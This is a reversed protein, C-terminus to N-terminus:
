STDEDRHTRRFRMLFLLKALYLVLLVLFYPLPNIERTRFVLDEKAPSRFFERPALNVPQLRGDRSYTISTIGSRNESIRSGRSISTEEFSVRRPADADLYSLYVLPTQADRPRQPDQFFLRTSGGPPTSPAKFGVPLGAYCPQSFSREPPFILARAPTFTEPILTVYSRSNRDLRRIGRAPLRGGEGTYPLDALLIESDGSQLQPLADAIIRSYTGSTSVIRVPTSLLYIYDLGPGVIRYLGEGDIEILGLDGGPLRREAAPVAKFAGLQEDYRMVSIERQYGARRLLIRYVETSFDYHVSTPYFFPEEGEGVEVVHLNTRGGDYRDTIFVVKRFGRDFLSQLESRDANFFTHTRRLAEAYSRAVDSGAAPDAAGPFRLGGLKFVRTRGRERDWALLFLRVREEKGGIEAARQVARQLADPNGGHIMSYSGDICIATRRSAFALIQTLFLAVVVAIILDFLVDYYIRITRLLFDLLREDQFSRLFTHSYVVRRRRKLRVILILVIPVLLLFLTTFFSFM